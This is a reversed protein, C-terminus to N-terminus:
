ATFQFSDTFRDWQPHDKYISNSALTYITDGKVLIDAKPATHKRIDLVRGGRIVLVSSKNTKM